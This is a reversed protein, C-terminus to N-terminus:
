LTGRERGQRLYEAEREIKRQMEHVDNWDYDHDAKVPPLTCVVNSGSFAFHDTTGVHASVNLKGGGRAKNISRRAIDALVSTGKAIDAVNTRNFLQWLINGEADSVTFLSFLPTM